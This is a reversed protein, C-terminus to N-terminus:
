DFLETKHPSFIKCSEVALDVETSIESIDQLFCILAGFRGPGDTPYNYLVNEGLEAFIQDRFSSMSDDQFLINVENALILGSLAAFEIERLAMKRLKNVTSM